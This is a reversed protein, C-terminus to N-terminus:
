GIEAIGKRSIPFETSNAYRTSIYKYGVEMRVGGECSMASGEVVLSTNDVLYFVILVCVVDLQGRLGPQLQNRGAIANYPRGNAVKINM